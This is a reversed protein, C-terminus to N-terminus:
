VNSLQNNTILVTSAGFIGSIIGGAVNLGIAALAGGGTAIGLVISASIIKINRRTFYKNAKVLEEKGKEVKEKSKAVNEEVETISEGQIEVLENIEKTLNTIGEIEKVLDDIKEKRRSIQEMKQEDESLIILKKEFKLTHFM